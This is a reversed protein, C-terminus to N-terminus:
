LKECGLGEGIVVSEPVVVLTEVFIKSIEEVYAIIEVFLFAFNM